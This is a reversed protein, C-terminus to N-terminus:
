SSLIINNSSINLPTDITKEMPTVLQIGTDFYNDISIDSMLFSTIYSNGNDRIQDSIELNDIYGIMENGDNGRLDGLM